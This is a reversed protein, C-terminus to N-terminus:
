YRILTDPQLMETHTLALVFVHTLARDPSHQFTVVIDVAHDICATAMLPGPANDSLFYSPGTFIWGLTQLARLTKRYAVDWPVPTEFFDGASQHSPADQVSVVNLAMLQQATHTLPGIDRVAWQAWAPSASCTVLGLGLFWLSLGRLKM